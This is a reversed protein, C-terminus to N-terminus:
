NSSCKRVVLNVNAGSSCSVVLYRDWDKRREHAELYQIIEEMPLDIVGRGMFRYSLLCFVFNVSVVVFLLQNKFNQTKAHVFGAINYYYQVHSHAKM